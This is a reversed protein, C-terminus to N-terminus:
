WSRKKVPSFEETEVVKDQQSKLTSSWAEERLAGQVFPRQLEHIVVCCVPRSGGGVWSQM